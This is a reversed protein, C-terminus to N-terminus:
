AKPLSTNLIRASSESAASFQSLAQRMEKSFVDIKSLEAAEKALAAVRYLLSDVAGYAEVKVANQREQIMQAPSKYAEAPTLAAVASM